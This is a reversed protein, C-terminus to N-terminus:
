RLPHWQRSSFPSVFPKAWNMHFITM